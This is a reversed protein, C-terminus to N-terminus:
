NGTRRSSRVHRCGSFKQPNKGTVVLARQGINKTLSGIERFKGAGFLIRGATAFEFNM